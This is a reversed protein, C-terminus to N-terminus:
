EGKELKDAEERLRKIWADKDEAWLGRGLELLSSTALGRQIKESKVEGIKEDLQKDLKVGVPYLDVRADIAQQISGVISNTIKETFASM